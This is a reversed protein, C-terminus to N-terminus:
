TEMPYFRDPNTLRLDREILHYIQPNMEFIDALIEALTLDKSPSFGHLLNYWGVIDMGSITYEPKTKM